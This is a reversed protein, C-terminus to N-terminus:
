SRTMLARLAKQARCRRIKVNALTIGLTRALEPNSADHECALTLVERYSPPLADIAAHLATVQEHSALADFTSDPERWAVDHHAASRRWRRLHRLATTVAVRYLWTRYHSDGRFQSAKRHATLMTDQAVDASDADGVMRRAIALVFARDGATM